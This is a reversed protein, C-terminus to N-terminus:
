TESPPSDTGASRRVSWRLSQMDAEPWAKAYTEQARHLKEAAFDTIPLPVDWEYQHAPDTAEDLPIGHDGRPRHQELHSAFWAARDADNFEPERVTV